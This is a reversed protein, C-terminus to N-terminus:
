ATTHYVTKPTTIYITHKNLCLNTTMDPTPIKCVIEGKPSVIKIGQMTALFLNGNQDTKIGDANENVFIKGNKFKGDIIEYKRIGKETKHITSVYMFKYDPSFCIGNPFQLENVLLELNGQHWRYVGASSQAFTPLLKQEKLGYPPDTFYISGDPGICLDNPSNLPKGQYSNVLIEIKGNPLLRAIAHNGHQCFILNGNFDIALGNAGIHESHFKTPKTQIGSNELFTELIGDQWKMIRNKTVDSFLLFGEPHWLPAEAFGLETAITIIKMKIKPIFSSGFLEENM